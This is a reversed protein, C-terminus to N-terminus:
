AANNKRSQKRICSMKARREWRNVPSCNIFEDPKPDSEREMIVKRSWSGMVTKSRNKEKRINMKNEKKKKIEPM